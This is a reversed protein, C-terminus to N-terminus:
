PIEHGVLPTVKLKEELLNVRKIAFREEIEAVIMAIIAMVSRASM